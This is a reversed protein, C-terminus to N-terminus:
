LGYFARANHRTIKQRMAPDLHAMERELVARSHPWRVASESSQPFANWGSTQPCIGLTLTTAPRAVPGALSAPSSATRLV